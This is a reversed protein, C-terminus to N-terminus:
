FGNEYKASNLGEKEGAISLKLRFTLIYYVEQTTHSRKLVTVCGM